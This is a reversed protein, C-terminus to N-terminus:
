GDSGIVIGGIGAELSPPIMDVGNVGGRSGNVRGAPTVGATRVVTSAGRMVRGANLKGLGRNLKGAKPPPRRRAFGCCIKWKPEAAEKENVTRDGGVGIRGNLIVRRVASEDIPELTLLTIPPLVIDMLLADLKATELLLDGDKDRKLRLLLELLETVAVERLLLVVVGVVVVVVVGGVVTVALIEIALDADSLM